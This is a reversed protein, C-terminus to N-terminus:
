APPLPRAWSRLRWRDRALWAERLAASFWAALATDRGHAPSLGQDRLSGIFEALEAQGLALMPKGQQESFAVLKRLDNEYAVLTNESLGREVRLHDLWAKLPQVRGRVDV